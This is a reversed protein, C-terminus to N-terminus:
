SSKPAAAEPKPPAVRQVTNNALLFDAIKREAIQDRLADLKKEAELRARVALPKRGTEEALRAIEKEIDEDAAELKEIKSLERFIYRQKAEIEALQERSAVYAEPDPVVQELQLGIREMERRDKQIRLYQGMLVMSRPIDMPNKDIIAQLIKFVAEGRHRELEGKELDGKISDRLEQLSGYDGLDKALEDDLEPLQKVKVSRITATYADTHEVTDGRRTQRVNKVDAKATEGEALGAIKSGLEEPLQTKFNNLLWNERSLHKLENGDAGVVKLDIAVADGEAIKHGAPAAEWRGCDRRIQELREKVADENPEAFSAEVSLGKYEKLEIVPELEIAADFSLPEGEKNSWKEVAVSSVLSLNRKLVEQRVVNTASETIADRDAESGMRIRILKVPAKGKRFGPLVVEKRLNEYFKDVQKQYADAPIEFAVALISGPRKEESKVAYPLDEVPKGTEEEQEQKAKETLWEARLLIPEPGDHTHDHDHGHEHDHDHDHGHEHTHAHAEAGEEAVATEPTSTKKDAM